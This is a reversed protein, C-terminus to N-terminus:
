KGLTGMGAGVRVCRLGTSGVGAKRGRGRLAPIQICAGLM